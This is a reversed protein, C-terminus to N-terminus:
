TMTARWSHFLEGVLQAKRDVDVERFGFHTKGDEAASSTGPDPKADSEPM